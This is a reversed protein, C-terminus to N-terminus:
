TPKVNNKSLLVNRTMNSIKQMNDLRTGCPWSFQGICHCVPAPVAKVSVINVIMFKCIYLILNCSTVYYISLKLTIIKNDRNLTRYNSTNPFFVHVIINYNIVIPNNYYYM